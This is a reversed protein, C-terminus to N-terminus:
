TYQNRQNQLRFVPRKCASDPDYKRQIRRSHLNSVNSVNSVHKKYVKYNIKKIHYENREKIKIM